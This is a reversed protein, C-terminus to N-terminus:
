DSLEWNLSLNPKVGRKEFDKNFDSIAANLDITIHQGENSDPQIHNDAIYCLIDNITSVANFRVNKKKLDDISYSKLVDSAFGFFDM